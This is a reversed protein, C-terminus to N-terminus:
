PEGPDDIMVRPGLLGFPFGAAAGVDRPLIHDVRYLKGFQGYAARQNKSLRAYPGFKQETMRGKSTLHDPVTVRDRGSVTVKVRAKGKPIEGNALTRLQGLAEGLEGKARRSLKNSVLRGGYGLPAAAYGGALASKGAGEWDVPRGNLLDQAVATAAGGAAGAQGPRLRTLGVATIAGGLGAGAYDGPSGLHGRQLDSLGQMGVGSAGGAAALAGLERGALATAEAMRAGGILAADMPGLALLGAGTGIVQGAIRAKHYHEADYRDRAREAELRNHLAQRFGAGQMADGLAGATAYAKDGLGFTLADQAGRAGALIPEGISRFAGQVTRVPPSPPRRVPLAARQQGSGSGTAARAPSTQVADAASSLAQRGATELHEGLERARAKQQEIWARMKEPLDAGNRAPQRAAM